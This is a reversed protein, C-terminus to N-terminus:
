RDDLLQGDARHGLHQYVSLDINEVLFRVSGDAFAFQAGGGGHRSEFGGVVLSPKASPVGSPQYELTEDVQYEEASLWPPKVTSDPLSSREPLEELPVAFGDRVTGTVVMAALLGGASTTNNIPTGTNRLTSRSGSLWGLEAGSSLLIEGLAITQGRGDSIDRYRINSNLFLVGHNDEDIPAELDHHCGAYHSGGIGSVSDSPCCLLGLYHRRVRANRRDYASVSFDVNRYLPTQEIFPLIQAIWSMHYGVPRSELPRKADITGPPLAAHSSEYNEIALMLQSLNNACSHRRATERAAQVAPLLFSVLAVIIAICVM